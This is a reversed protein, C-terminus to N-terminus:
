TTEGAAGGRSQPGKSGPERRAAAAAPGPLDGQGVEREAERKAEAEKKIADAVGKELLGLEALELRNEPKDCFEVFQQPDNEFRLRVKAPLQMFLDEAERVAEIAERYDSIGDFDGYSPLRALPPLQGTKAYRAMIVNIDTDQSDAQVTLSDGKCVTGHEDSWAKRTKADEYGTMLKM